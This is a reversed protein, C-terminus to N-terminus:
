VISYFQVMDIRKINFLQHLKNVVSLNSNKMIEVMRCVVFIKIKVNFVLNFNWSRYVQIHIQAPGLVKETEWLLWDRLYIKEMMTMKIGLVSTCLGLGHSFKKEVAISFQLYFHRRRRFDHKLVAICRCLIARTSKQWCNYVINKNRRRSM